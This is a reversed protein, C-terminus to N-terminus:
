TREVWTRGGRGALEDNGGGRRTPVSFLLIKDGRFEDSLLVGLRKGSYKAAVVKRGRMEAAFRKCVYDRDHTVM